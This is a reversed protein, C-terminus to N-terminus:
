YSQAFYALVKGSKKCYICKGIDEPQEFPIVRITAKTEQKIKEECVPNECWFAKIFGRSKAMTDKFESYNEAEYTNEAMFSRAALFLDTQIEELLHSIEEVAENKKLLVKKGNDRRVVTLSKKEVEKSGIEIRVPVGKLEWDNFKYGLSLTERLDSEVRIGAKKLLDVIERSYFVITNDDPKVPVVIVQIPAIKPPMVLGNDDGHVMILAGINRTSFGWSTQYVYELKKDQSQYRINFVRSFHDSLDHSTCSQLAKADPMLAELSYTTKAGAFKEKESKKGVLVPIALTKEVFEQYVAVAAKAMQDAELAGAHATHGEQWLFESTRLFLYTRKEWRVINCWQNVKFPLDRWSKIWKSFMSYIITESTPRVVLKEALEEGGGITVIALEPSFGKIHEKEKELFSYPIFLPFYANPTQLDEKIAKGLINQIGEWLAYGYPRIVMTGKVPSYDALEAKLVVDNYWGSFDESKKTLQKKDFM